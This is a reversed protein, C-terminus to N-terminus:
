NVEEHYQALQFQVNSAKLKEIKLEQEKIIAKHTEEKQTLIDIEKNDEEHTTKLNKIEGKLNDCQHSIRKIDTHIQEYLTGKM